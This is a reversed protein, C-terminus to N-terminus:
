SVQTIKYKGSKRIQTQYYSGISEAEMLEEHKEESLKEVKYTGAPAGAHMFQVFTDKGIRGISFVISSLVRKRTYILEKCEKNACHIEVETETVVEKTESHKCKVM